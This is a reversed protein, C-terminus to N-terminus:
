KHSIRPGKSTPGRDELSDFLDSAYAKLSELGVNLCYRVFSENGWIDLLPFAVFHICVQWYDRPLYSGQYWLMVIHFLFPICDAVVNVARLFYFLCILTKSVSCGFQLYLREVFSEACAEGWAKQLYVAILDM